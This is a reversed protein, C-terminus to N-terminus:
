KKELRKELEDLRTNLRELQEAIRDLQANASPNAPTTPATPATPAAPTLVGRDDMIRVRPVSDGVRQRFAEALGKFEDKHSKLENLARELEVLANEKIKEFDQGNAKLQKVAEEIAKQISEEDFGGEWQFGGPLQMWREEMGPVFIDGAFPNARGLKEGEYAELKVTVDKSEGKRFVKFKIEDGPNKSKLIGRLDQETLPSKGDAEVILDNPELGGKSAPLGDIVSDIFVGTEREVGLRKLTTEDATTMTVGLMVKPPEFRPAFEIFNQGGRGGRGGAGGGGFAEGGGGRGSGRNIARGTFGINLKMTHEVNGKDDLFEVTGDRQRIRDKPVPKGDVEASQVEGDVITVKFTNTGDSQMMTLSSSSKESKEAPQEAHALPRDPSGKLVRVPESQAMASAAGALVVLSSILSRKM